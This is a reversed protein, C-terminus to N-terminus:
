RPGVGSASVDRVPRAARRRRREALWILTALLATHELLAITVTHLPSHHFLTHLDAVLSVGTWPQAAHFIFGVALIVDLLVAGAAALRRDGRSRRAYLLYGVAGHRALRTIFVTVLVTAALGARYNAQQAGSVPTAGSGLSAATTVLSGLYVYLFTGPLM